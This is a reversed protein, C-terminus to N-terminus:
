SISCRVVGSDTVVCFSAGVSLLVDGNSLEYAGDEEADIRVLQSQERAECACLSNEYRVLVYKGVKLDKQSM